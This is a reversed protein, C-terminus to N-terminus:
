QPSIWPFFFFFGLTKKNLFTPLNKNQYRKAKKFLFALFLSHRFLEWAAFRLCYSFETLVELLYTESAAKIQKNRRPAYLNWLTKSRKIGRKRENRLFWEKDESLNAISQTKCTHLPPPLSTSPISLLLFFLDFCVSNRLLVKVINKFM